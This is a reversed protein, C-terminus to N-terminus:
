LKRPQPRTASVHLLAVQVKASYFVNLEVEANSKMAEHEWNCSYLHVIVIAIQYWPLPPDFGAQTGLIGEM